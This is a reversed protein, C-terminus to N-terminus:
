TEINDCILRGIPLTGGLYQKVDMVREVHPHIM